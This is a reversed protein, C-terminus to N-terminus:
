LGVMGGLLWNELSSKITFAYVQGDFYIVYVENILLQQVLMNWDLNLNSVLRSSVPM